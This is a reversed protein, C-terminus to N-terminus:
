RRRFMLVREIGSLDNEAGAFDLGCAAFIARVDAGQGRGIEFFAVGDPNLLGPCERALHRYAELGDAGGDLAARPDYERVAPELHAIEATPIYPPNSVVIDFAGLGRAFDPAAFDKRMFAAPLGHANKRAVALAKESIDVGVGAANPYEGLLSALLCGSGTGIDLIRYPRSKDPFCKLVSEILTESDPRPDLVDPTVIFDGKWFGRRGLIKSVPEGAKRRRVFEEASVPAGSQAHLRADLSPTDSFGRLAATIADLNGPM